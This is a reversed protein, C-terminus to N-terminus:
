KWRGLKEKSQRMIEENEDIRARNHCLERFYFFRGYTKRCSKKQLPLNEPLHQCVVVQLRVFRCFCSFICLFQKKEERWFGTKRGFRGLFPGKKRDTRKKFARHAPNPTSPSCSVVNQSFASKVSLFGFHPWARMSESPFGLFLSAFLPPLLILVLSKKAGM